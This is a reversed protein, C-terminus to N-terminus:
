VWSRAKHRRRAITGPTDAADRSYLASRKSTATVTSGAPSRSTRSVSVKSKWDPVNSFTHRSIGPRRVSPMSIMSAVISSAGKEIPSPGPCMATLPLRRVRTSHRNVGM